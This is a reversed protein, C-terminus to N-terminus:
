ARCLLDNAAGAPKNTGLNDQFEVCLLGYCFGVASSGAEPKPSSHISSYVTFHLLM